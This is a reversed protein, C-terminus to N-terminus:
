GRRRYRSRARHRRRGPRPEPPLRRGRGTFSQEAAAAGRVGNPLSRRLRYPHQHRKRSYVATYAGPDLTTLIAAEKDNTPQLGTAEIATKDGSKWNDNSLVLESGRYLDITPDALVGDVGLSSVSPDIARILVTQATGATNIAAARHIRWHPSRQVQKGKPTPRSTPSDTLLADLLRDDQSSLTRNPQAM